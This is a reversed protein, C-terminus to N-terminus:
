SLAFVRGSADLQCSIKAQRTEIGGQTTYRIRVNLPAALAGRELRRPSGASVAYVDQAGYRAASAEIANRCARVVARPTGPMSLLAKLDTSRDNKGRPRLLMPLIPPAPYGQTTPVTVVQARVTGTAASASGASSADGPRGTSGTTKGGGISAGGSATGPSSSVGGGSGGTMGTDSGAVSGKVGLSGGTNGTSGKVGLGIGTGGVDGKVGLSAGGGGVSGTVGLGAGTGGVNGTVGVAAGLSGGGGAGASADVDAGAVGDVDAGLGVSAGGGSLGVGGKLGLGGVQAGVGLDLASAPTAAALLATLVAALYRRM